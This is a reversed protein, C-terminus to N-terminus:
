AIPGTLPKTTKPVVPGGSGGAGQLISRCTAVAARFGSSPGRGFRGFGGGDGAIARICDRYSADAAEAKQQWSRIV